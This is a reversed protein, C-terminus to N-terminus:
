VRNEVTERRSESIDVEGLNENNTQTENNENSGQNTENNPQIPNELRYQHVLNLIAWHFLNTKTIGLIKWWIIKPFRGYKKNAIEKGREELNLQQYEPDNLIIRVRESAPVLDQIMAQLTPDNRIDEIDISSVEDYESAEDEDQGHQQPQDTTTSSQQEDIAGQNNNQYDRKFLYDRKCMPCCARRKILWPDLCIQHFVHGCILGRVLDDNELLELCIACSGSDFHLRQITELKMNSSSPQTAIDTEEMENVIPTIEILEIDKGNSTDVVSSTHASHFSDEDNVVTPTGPEEEEEKLMGERIEVDREKGGNLWDYYTKKPFLLEVEEISLKKLKSFRDRRRRRRRRRRRARTSNNLNSTALRQEISEGRIFNHDRIYELQEQIETTTFIHAFAHGNIPSDQQNNSSSSTGGGYRSSFSAYFNRRNIPFLNLGYKSRIFYRITFFVFLLAIAVGVGLALFFLVTSPTSGVFSYGNNQLAGNGNGRSSTTEQATPSSLTPSSLAPSSTLQLLTTSM